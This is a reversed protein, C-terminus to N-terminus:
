EGVLSLIMEAARRSAGPGGLSSAIEKLKTKVWNRRAADDLLELTAGAINDSTAQGQIFEPFVEENALLNPMAVWKVNVLSKGLAYTAWSTKYMVVTPVGFFGCELTITGSKAIAVDAEALAGALNASRVEVGEPLGFQKAAPMLTEGLIMTARIGPKVARIQALAESLVPLHRKLESPRSGPFIVLRPNAGPMRGAAFRENPIDRAYRDVIPHGVFEVRLQPVRQAYWAKEFPFITLLLDVNRALKNARWPRSAWVQPSVFQIIKPHWATEGQGRVHEKVTQAFRSNFGGFDVCILADPRREIALALLQQLRAKYEGLRKLAELGFVANQSFDFVTEVGADRVQAGGVGFFKQPSSSKERLATVLEAALMDGSAEGTIVM